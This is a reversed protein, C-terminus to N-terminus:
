GSLTIFHFGLLCNEIWVYSKFLYIRHSFWGILQHDAIVDKLLIMERWLDEVSCEKWSCSPPQVWHATLYFGATLSAWWLFSAWSGWPVDSCSHFSLEYLILASSQAYPWQAGNKEQPGLHVPPVTSSHRQWLHFPLPCSTPYVIPYFLWQFLFLICFTHSIVPQSVSNVEKEGSPEM